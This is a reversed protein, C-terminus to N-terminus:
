AAEFSAPMLRRREEVLFRNAEAPDDFWRRVLAKGGSQISACFRRRTADFRVGRYGTANCRYASKNQQSEAATLWHLNQTRNDLKDRSEHDRHFAPYRSGPLVAHHLYVCRGGARRMVYGDKDLRWRYGVLHAFAEDILAPRNSGAVTVEIM